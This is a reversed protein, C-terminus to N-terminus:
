FSLLTVYFSDNNWLANGIAIQIRPNTTTNVLNFVFFFASRSNFLHDNTAYVPHDCLRPPRM